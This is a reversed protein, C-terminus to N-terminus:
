FELIDGNKPAIASFGRRELEHAFEECEEGHMVVIHEPDVKEIFELLESRSCHASFDLYKIQMKVKFSMDGNTYIGTDLLERGPTGPVQFGTFVLACDERKRLKKLFYIVPGGTLM